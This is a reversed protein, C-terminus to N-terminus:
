IVVYRSYYSVVIFMVFFCVICWHADLVRIASTALRIGMPPGPWILCCVDMCPWTTNKKKSEKIKCWVHANAPV